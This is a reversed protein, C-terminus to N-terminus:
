MRGARVPYGPIEGLPAASSHPSANAAQGRPWLTGQPDRPSSKGWGHPNKQAGYFTGGRGHERSSSREPVPSRLPLVQTDM